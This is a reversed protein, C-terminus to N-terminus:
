RRAATTPRGGADAETREQRPRSWASVHAPVATRPRLDPAPLPTGPGTNLPLVGAWYPLALDAEDDGPPGSRVKVSVEALDLRLVATAALEKRTPGRVEASRGPVVADVVAALARQKEDPDEVPHARGHALVSRYNVSHNLAARALVLGDLLTVTVCVDIGDPRAALMSGAGTSGHLYLVDDVRAHLQPLVVPSGDRIFGVHCCIAEDLIAHAAVRDYGVREVRRHPTTRPTRAYTEM